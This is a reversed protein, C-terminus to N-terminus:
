HRGLLRQVIRRLEACLTQNRGASGGVVVLLDGCHDPGWLYYSNHGSIAPPLALFRGIEALAGAEGYNQCLICLGAQQAAPLSRVVRAVELTLESWGFMDAYYQSLEGLRKRETTEPAAGLAAQYRVFTAVRLLTERLM